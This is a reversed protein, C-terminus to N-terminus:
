GARLETFVPGFHAFLDTPLLSQESARGRLIARDAARGHFWAALRAADFVPLKQGLFAACIGTLVDGMGGTAMGANGTTNYALPRGREGILTRAGKLLLTVPYRDTFGRVLDKRAVYPEAGIGRAAADGALLRQMEGPHPTLLRPGAARTLLSVDQALANLGDADVVMPKPWREILARVEDANTQGLGPGLALVDFNLDLADLPSGLPKVMVEPMAAAAVIPYIEPHVLLTILGAGARACAHSCMVAAGTAGVSGALIGVRGYMGKNSEHARPPLLGALAARTVAEGRGAAEPAQRAADAFEPLTLVHLKGVHNAARDALLGTKAFGVTLTEDAVVADPDADGTAADLGTPTDIAFVYAGRTSRLDNIERAATLIPGRLAGRAGIGLLGDLVCLRGSRAPIQRAQAATLRPFRDPSLPGLKEQALEGLGSADDLALRLKIEVPVHCARALEFLMKAAALADGANNGKGAYILVTGGAKWLRTILHRALQRGVEDMLTEARAGAAFVAHEVARMEEPTVIM